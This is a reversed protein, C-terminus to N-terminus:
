AFPGLRLLTRPGEALRTPCAPLRGEPEHDADLSAWRWRGRRLKRVPGIVVVHDIGAGPPVGTATPSLPASPDAAAPPDDDQLTVLMRRRAMTWSSPRQDRARAVDCVPRWGEFLGGGDRFVKGGLCVDLGMQAGTSRNVQCYRALVDAIETLFLDQLAKRTHANIRQSLTESTDVVVRSLGRRFLLGLM